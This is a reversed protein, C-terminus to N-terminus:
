DNKAGQEIWALIISKELETARTDHTGYLIEYLSSLEPEDINVYGDTTLSEYANEARVDPNRGGNHCAVCKSEFIPVIDQEFSVPETTDYEPPEVTVKECSCVFSVMVFFLITKISDKM